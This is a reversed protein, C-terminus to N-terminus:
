QTLVWNNMVVNVVEGQYSDSLASPAKFLRQNEMRINNWIIETLSIVGSPCDEAFRKAIFVPSGIWTFSGSGKVVSIPVRVVHGYDIGISVNLHSKGQSKKNVVRCLSNIRASDDIVSDVDIKKPTSYVVLLSDPTAIIDHCRDNSSCICTAESLFAQLLKYDEERFHNGGPNDNRLKIYMITANVPVSIKSSEDSVPITPIYQLHTDASLFRDIRDLSEIFNYTAM